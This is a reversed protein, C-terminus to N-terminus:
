YRVGLAVGTVGNYRPYDPLASNSEHNEGSCYIEYTDWYGVFTYPTGCPCVLETVREEEPIKSPDTYRLRALHQLKADYERSEGEPHGSCRFDAGRAKADMRYGYTMSMAEPCEPLTKFYGPTIQSLEAPYCGYDQAYMEVATGLNQLNSRCGTLTSGSSRRRPTVIERVVLFVLLIVLFKALGSVFAVTKKESKRGM